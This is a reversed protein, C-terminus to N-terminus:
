YTPSLISNVIEIVDLVNIISDNNMDASWFQLDNLENYGMIHNVTQIIDLIDIIGDSNVDGKQNDIIGMGLFTIEQIQNVMDNSAITMVVNFNDNSIPHFTVDFICTDGPFIEWCNFAAIDFNGDMPSMNTSEIILNDNGINELLISRVVETGVLTEGFDVQSQSIELIPGNPPIGGSGTMMATQLEAFYSSNEVQFIAFTVDTSHPSFTIEINESQGPELVFNDIGNTIEFLDAYLGVINLSLLELPQSGVSLIEIIQTTSGGIPVEGFNVSPPNLSIAPVDTPIPQIGIIMGQSGNFNSGWGPTLDSLYYYGNYYGSWGWNCHFYNSNQYGDINWAHASNGSAGRYIVPRGSDLEGCLLEEWETDDFLFKEHFEVGQDYAFRTRLAQAANPHSSGVYAGSGDPGYDMEVAVGCHYLLTKVADNASSNPMSSFNYDTEGFNASLTGYASHYYSHSGIGMEPYNWYKMVQAMSVAVCGAWVHNGPGQNDSPCYQNWPSGQDWNTAVLPAVSRCDRYQMFNEWLDRTVQNEEHNESIVTFIETQWLEFLMELQPPLNNSDFIAEFSYGLVPVIRDDASLLVFGTPYLDAVFLLDIGDRSVIQPESVTRAGNTMAITEAISLVNDSTVPISFGISVLM